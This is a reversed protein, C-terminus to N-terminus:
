GTTPPPPAARLTGDEATASESLLAALEPTATATRGLTRAARAAARGARLCATLEPTGGGIAGLADVLTRSTFEDPGSALQRAILVRLRPRATAPLLDLARPDRARVLALAADPLRQRSPAADPAHQRRAPRFGEYQIYKPKRGTRRSHT